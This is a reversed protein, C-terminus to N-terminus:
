DGVVPPLRAARCRRALVAQVLPIPGLSDVRQWRLPQLDAATLLQEVRHPTRARQRRSLAVALGLWRACLDVLIFPAEPKLVRAVESIGAPQDVWHDFSTVSVVLDFSSDPHPIREAAAQDLTIRPDLAPASRGTAIMSAAPDMGVLDIAAPLRRALTRLLAGTGCGVDLIRQAGPAVGTAIDASTTTIREHWAALWGREYSVARRDFAAVDRDRGM